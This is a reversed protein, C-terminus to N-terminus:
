ISSDNLRKVPSLTFAVTVGMLIILEAAKMGHQNVDCAEHYQSEILYFHFLYISVESFLASM